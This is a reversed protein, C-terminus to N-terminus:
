SKGVQKVLHLELQFPKKSRPSNSETFVSKSLTSTSFCATIARALGQLVATNGFLASISRVRCPALLQSICRRPMFRQLSIQRLVDVEPFPSNNCKILTCQCWM